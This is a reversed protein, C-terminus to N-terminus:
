NDKSDDGAKITYATLTEGNSTIDQRQKWDERQRNNLWYMCAMVDPAYHKTFPIVEGTKIVVEETQSFGIARKYLSKIVQSDSDSKGKKLAQVFSEDQKWRNLTVENVGLISAIMVDTLGERAMTEIKQLDFPIASLKQAVSTPPRGIRKKKEPMWNKGTTQICIFV